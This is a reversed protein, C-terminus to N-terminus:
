GQIRWQSTTYTNATNCNHRNNDNFYNTNININDNNNNNYNCHDIVMYIRKGYVCNMLICSLQTLTFQGPKLTQLLVLWTGDM